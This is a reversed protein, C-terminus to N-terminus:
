SLCALWAVFSQRLGRTLNGRGPDPAGLDLNEGKNETRGRKQDSQGKLCVRGRGSETRETKREDDWKEWTWLGFM